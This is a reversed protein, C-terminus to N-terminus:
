ESGQCPCATPTTGVPCGDSYVACGAAGACCGAAKPVPDDAVLVIAQGKRAFDVLSPLLQKAAPALSVDAYTALGDLFEAVSEATPELVDRLDEDYDVISAVADDDNMAVVDVLEAERDFSILLGTTTEDNEAIVLVHDRFVIVDFVRASAGNKIAFIGWETRDANLPRAVFDGSQHPLSTSEGQVTLGVPQVFTMALQVVPAEQAHLASRETPRAERLQKATRPQRDSRIQKQARADPVAVLTAAGVIVAIALRIPSKAPKAFM